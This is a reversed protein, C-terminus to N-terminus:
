WIMQEYDSIPQGLVISLSGDKASGDISWLGTPAVFSVAPQGLQEKVILADLNGTKPDFLAQDVYGVAVGTMAAFVPLGKLEASANMPGIWQKGCEGPDEIIQDRTVSIVENSCTIFNIKGDSSATESLLFGLEPNDKDNLRFFNRAEQSHAAAISLLLIASGFVVSLRRKLLHDAM